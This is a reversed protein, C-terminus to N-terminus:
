KRLETEEEMYKTIDAAKDSNETIAKILEKIAADHEAVKKKIMKIKEDKDEKSGTSKEM